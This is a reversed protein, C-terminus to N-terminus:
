LPSFRALVRAGGNKIQDEENKCTILVVMFAQILQFKPWAWGQVTTLQGQAYPFIGMSKYSPLFTTVVRAGENKIQDEEIRYTFPVCM